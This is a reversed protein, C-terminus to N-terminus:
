GNSIIIVLPYKQNKQIMDMKVKVEEKAVWLKAERQTDFTSAVKKFVGHGNVYSVVARWKKGRKELSAM